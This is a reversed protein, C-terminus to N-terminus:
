TAGEEQLVITGKHYGDAYEEELELDIIYGYRLTLDDIVQILNGNLWASLILPDNDKHIVFEVQTRYTIPGVSQLYTLGNLATNVVQTLNPTRVTKSIYPTIEVGRTTDYLTDM